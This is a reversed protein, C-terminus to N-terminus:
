FRLEDDALQTWHSGHVPQMRIDSRPERDDVALALEDRPEAALRSGPQFRALDDRRGPEGAIRAPVNVDAFDTIGFVGAQEGIRDWPPHTRQLFQLLQVSWARCSLGFVHGGRSGATM